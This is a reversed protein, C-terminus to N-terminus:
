LGKTYPLTSVQGLGVCDLITESVYLINADKDLIILFGDIAQM